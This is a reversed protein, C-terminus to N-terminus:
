ARELKVACKKYDPQKSIPCFADLTVENILYSEDFFPVFVMGQPPRGRGNISAKMVVSGRRSSIKVKMGNTIGMRSADDPNIEVYSEPAARHLIPVRRTMSGTHWHELIRGTNLWFPYESDPSEAAPEYPRAWIWAKRDPKGYFDFDEGKAAPDYKANYRWKTEMGNVYPWQIGSRTKLEKYPAMRHKPNDHFRIYENWIDEIYTERSWPFQKEYGLRRAVEILQWTNCM